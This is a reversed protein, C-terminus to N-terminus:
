AAMRAARGYATMFVAEWGNNYSERNKAGDEAQAEWGTHILTVRTGSETAAFSVRVRTAEAEPRRLQWTFEMAKGPQWDTIVGWRVETGDALTEVIQGGPHPEFRLGQAVKGDMGSISHTHLPWWKGIESWFVKFARAPTVPVIVEKRIDPIM